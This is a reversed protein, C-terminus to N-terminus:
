EDREFRKESESAINKWWRVVFGGSERYEVVAKEAKLEALRVAESIEGQLPDPDGAWHIIRQRRDLQRRFDDYQQQEVFVGGITFPNEGIRPIFYAILMDASAEIKRQVEQLIEFPGRSGDRFTAKYKYKMEAISAFTKDRKLIRERPVFAADLRRSQDPTENAHRPRTMGEPQIGGSRVFHIVEVAEYVKALAEEAFQLRLKAEERRTIWSQTMIVALVAVIAGAIM